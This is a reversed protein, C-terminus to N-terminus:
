FGIDSTYRIVDDRVSLVQGYVSAREFKFQNKKRFGNGFYTYTYLYYLM